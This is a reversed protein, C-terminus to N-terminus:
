PPSMLTSSDYKLTSMIDALFDKDVKYQDEHLDEFNFEYQDFESGSPVFAVFKWLITPTIIVAHGTDTAAEFTTAHSLPGCRELIRVGGNTHLVATHRHTPDNQAEAQAGRIMADVYDAKLRARQTLGITATQFPTPGTLVNTGNVPKISWSVPARLNFPSGVLHISTRESSVLEQTTPRPPGANEPPPPETPQPAPTNDDCGAFVMCLGILVRLSRLHLRNRAM